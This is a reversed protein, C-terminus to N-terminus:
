PTQILFVPIMTPLIKDEALLSKWKTFLEKLTANSPDGLMDWQAVISQIQPAIAVYVLTSLQYLRYEHPYKEKLSIM